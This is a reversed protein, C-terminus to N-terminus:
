SIHERYVIILIKPRGLPSPFRIGTLLPGAVTASKAVIRVVQMRMVSCIIAQSIFKYAVERAQTSVAVLCKM